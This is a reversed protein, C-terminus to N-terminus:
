LEYKDMLVILLEEAAYFGNKKVMSRFREKTMKTAPINIQTNRKGKREIPGSSQEAKNVPTRSTFGTAEGAREAIDRIELHNSTPKDSNDALFGGLDLGARKRTM